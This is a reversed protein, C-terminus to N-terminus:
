QYCDANLQMHPIYLIVSIVCSITYKMVIDSKDKNLVKM